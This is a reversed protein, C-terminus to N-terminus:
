KNVSAEVLCGIAERLVTFYEADTSYNGISTTFQRIINDVQEEGYIEELMTFYEYDEIGDRVCELRLSGVPDFYYWDVMHGPYLLIGNGYVDMNQAASIEHKSYWAGTRDYENCLEIHNDNKAARPDTGVAWDNVAYYLFGDVDYLKQQWFLTRYSVADQQTLVTLEPNNPNRTVYWWTEDGGLKEAAMREAFTGLNHELRTTLKYTLNRNLKFESYSTYFHTKPCWATVSDKVYEFYDMNGETGIESNLHIPAILKYDTGYYQKILDAAANIKDLGTINGPEDVPYFYAKSLLSNGAADVKGALSNYSNQVNTANLDTKWGLNLFAVVRPNEMYALATGTYVGNKDIGPITYACLRNELLFDYYVKHPNSKELQSYVDSSYFNEGFELNYRGANVTYISTVDLDVLTKCATDEALEFNWVYAFVKITKVVNGAADYFNVTASYEGADTSPLSKAKIVFTQNTNAQLSFTSFNGAIPPLPDIVNQGKIDFYYGMLVDSKMTSKGNTHIFDSVEIRLGSKDTSSAIILQCAEIENKALTMRYKSYASPIMQNQPTRTYTHNFWLTLDSDENAATGPVYTAYEGGAITGSLLKDVEAQEEEPLKEVGGANPTIGMAKCASAYDTAFMIQSIVVGEGVNQGAFMYDFRFNNVNGAWNKGSLDFYIYQWDEDYNDFATTINCGPTAGTVAGASYYLEFTSNSCNVAKMKIIVFKYVDASVAPRKISSLYGSFNFTAFPDTANATNTSLSLFSAGNESYVGVNTQNSSSVYKKINKNSIIVSVVSTDAETVEETTEEDSSGEVTTEDADTDAATTEDGTTSEATTDATTPQEVSETETTAGTTETATTTDDETVNDATTEVVSEEPANTTNTTDTNGGKDKNCAVLTFVLAVCLVLVLLIKKM